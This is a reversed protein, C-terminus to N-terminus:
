PTTEPVCAIALAAVVWPAHVRASASCAARSPSLATTQRMM